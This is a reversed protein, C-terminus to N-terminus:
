PVVKIKGDPTRFRTGKPLRAAEAPSRVTPLNDPVSTRGGAARAPPTSRVEIRNRQRTDELSARNSQRVRELGLRNGYRVGELREDNGTRHDDLELDREYASPGNAKLVYDEVARFYGETGPELGLKAAYEEFDEPGDYITQVQGTGPDYAIRDRGITFPNAAQLDAENQRSWDQHQWNLIMESARRQREAQDDRRAILARTAYAPNGAAGALGDALAALAFQWGKIPKQEGTLKALAADYDFPERMSGGLPGAPNVVSRLPTASMADRQRQADGWPDTALDEQAVVRPAQDLVAQNAPANRAAAEIESPRPRAQNRVPRGFIGLPAQMAGMPAHPNHQVMPDVAPPTAPKLALRGIM